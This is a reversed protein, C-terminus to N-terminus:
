HQNPKQQSKLSRMARLNSIRSVSNVRPKCKDSSCSTRPIRHGKPRSSTLSKSWCQHRFTLVTPRQAMQAAAECSSRWFRHIEITTLQPSNKRDDYTSPSFFFLRVMKKYIDICIMIFDTYTLLNLAGEVPYFKEEKGHLRFSCLDVVYRWILYNVHDSTAHKPNVPPMNISRPTDCADLM